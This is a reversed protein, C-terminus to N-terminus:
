DARALLIKYDDGLMMDGGATLVCSLVYTGGGRVVFEIADGDNITNYSGSYTSGSVHLDGWFYDATELTFSGDRYFTISSVRDAFIITDGLYTEWTGVISDSDKGCASLSLFSIILVLVCIVSLSRKFRCKM